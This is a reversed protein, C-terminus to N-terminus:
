LIRRIDWIRYDVEKCKDIFLQFLETIMFVYGEVFINLNENEKIYKNFFYEIFQEPYNDRIFIFLEGINYNINKGTEKYSVLFEHVEKMDAKICAADISIYNLKDNLLLESITSKGISSIGRLVIITKKYEGVLPRKDITPLSGMDFKKSNMSGDKM